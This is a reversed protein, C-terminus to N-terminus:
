HTQERTLAAWIPHKKLEQTLEEVSRAGDLTVIRGKRATWEAVLNEVKTTRGALWAPDQNSGRGSRRGAAWVEATKLYAVTLDWGADVLCQFFGINALRDGEAVAAQCQTTQAWSMAAKQVSMSLRDTGGYGNPDSSGLQVGGMYHIMGFPKKTEGLSILDRTALTMLTTKGSGPIGLLYLFQKM